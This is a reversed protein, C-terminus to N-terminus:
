EDLTSIRGMISSEPPLELVTEGSQQVLIVSDSAVIVSFVQKGDLCLTPEIPERDSARLWEPYQTTEPSDPDFWGYIAENESIGAGFYTSRKQDTMAYITREGYSTQDILKIAESGVKRIEIPTSASATPIECITESRSCGTLVLVALCGVIYRPVCLRPRNKQM